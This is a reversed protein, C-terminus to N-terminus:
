GSANVCCHFSRCGLEGCGEEALESSRLPWIGPYRCCLGQSGCFDCAGTGCECRQSKHFLGPRSPEGALPCSESAPVVVAANVLASPQDAWKLEDVACTLHQM